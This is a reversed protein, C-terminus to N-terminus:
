KLLEPNEYINGIVRCKPLQMDYLTGDTYSKKGLEGTVSQAMFGGYEWFVKVPIKWLNHKIIDGEYIEVGNKDKLGTYQMLSYRQSYLIDTPVSYHNGHNEVKGLIRVRQRSSNIGIIDAVKFMKGSTTDYIRFKIERMALDLTKMIATRSALLM